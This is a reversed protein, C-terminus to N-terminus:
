RTRGVRVPPLPKGRGSSSGWPHPPRDTSAPLDGCCMFLDDSRENRGSCCSCDHTSCLCLAFLSFFSAPIVADEHLAAAVGLADWVCNAYYRKGRAQVPFPTVVGSFPHAMRIRSPDGPDPVLLRKTHLRAFAAVVEAPTSGTKQAVEAATPVAATEAITRYITLKVTTDFDSHM